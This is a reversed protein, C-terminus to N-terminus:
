AGNGAWGALTEAFDACALAEKGNLAGAHAALAATLNNLLGAL